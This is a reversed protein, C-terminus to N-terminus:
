QLEQDAHGSVEASSHSIERLLRKPKPIARQGTNSSMYIDM